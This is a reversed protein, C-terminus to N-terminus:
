QHSISIAGTASIMSCPRWFAAAISAAIQYFTLDNATGPGIDIQLRQPVDGFRSGRSRAGAKTGDLILAQLETWRSILERMHRGATPEGDQRELEPRTEEVPRPSRISVASAERVPTM